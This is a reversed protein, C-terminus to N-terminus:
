HQILIKKQTSQGAPDIARLFYIGDDLNTTDLILNTPIGGTIAGTQNEAQAGLQNGSQGGNQNTLQNGSLGGLQNVIPARVLNGLQDFLSVEELHDRSAVQISEHAPIPFARLDPSSTAFEDMSTFEHKGGEMSWKGPDILDIQAIGGPAKVLNQLDLAQGNNDIELFFLTNTSLTQPADLEIRVKIGHNSNTLTTSANGGALGNELTGPVSLLSVTAGEALSTTLTIELDIVSVGFGEEVIGLYNCQLEAKSVDSIDPHDLEIDTNSASLILNEPNQGLSTEHTLLFLSWSFFFCLTGRSGGFTKLYCM